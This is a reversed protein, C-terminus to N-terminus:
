FISSNKSFTELRTNSKAMRLHGPSDYSLHQDGTSAKKINFEAKSCSTKLVPQKTKRIQETLLKANKMYDPSTPPLGYSNRQRREDDDPAKQTILLFNGKGKHQSMTEFDKASKGFVPSDFQDGEEPDAHTVFQPSARRDTDQNKAGEGSSSSVSALGKGFKINKPPFVLEPIEIHDKGPSEFHDYKISSQDAMAQQMNVFNPDAEEEEGEDDDVIPNSFERSEDPQYTAERMDRKVSKSISPGREVSSKFAFSARPNISEALMPDARSVKTLYEQYLKENCKEVLKIFDEKAEPTNFLSLVLKANRAIYKKDFKTKHIVLLFECLAWKEEKFIDMNTNKRIMALTTLVDAMAESTQNLKTEAEILLKMLKFIFIFSKVAKSQNEVIAEKIHAVAALVNKTNVDFLPAYIEPVLHKEAIVRMEKISKCKAIDTTM